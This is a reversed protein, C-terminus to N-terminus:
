NKNSNNGIDEDGGKSFSKKVKVGIFYLLIAYIIFPFMFSGSIGLLVAFLIFVFKIPRVFFAQLIYLSWFKVASLPGTKGKFEKNLKEFISLSLILRWKPNYFLMDTYGMSGGGEGISEAMAASKIESQISPGKKPAGGRMKKFPNKLSVKKLSNLSGVQNWFIVCLILGIVVLLFINKNHKYYDVVRTIEDKLTRPKETLDTQINEDELDEDSQTNILKNNQKNNQNNNQNNNKTNRFIDFIM